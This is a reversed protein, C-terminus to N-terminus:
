TSDNNLRKRVERVTIFGRDWSYVGGNCAVDRGSNLEATGDRINYVLGDQTEWVDESSYPIKNGRVSIIEGYHMDEVINYDWRM